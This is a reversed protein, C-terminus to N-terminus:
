IFARRDSYWIESHKSLMECLFVLIIPTDNLPTLTNRSNGFFLRNQFSWLMTLAAEITDLRQVSTSILKQQRYFNTKYFNTYYQNIYYKTLLTEFSLSEDNAPPYKDSSRSFFHISGMLLLIQIDQAPLMNFFHHIETYIAAQIM